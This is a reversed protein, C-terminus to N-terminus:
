ACRRTPPRLPRNVGREVTAAGPASVARSAPWGSDLNGAIQM